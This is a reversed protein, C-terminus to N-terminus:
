YACSMGGALWEGDPSYSMNHWAVKNIPDSFRYTPELEQETLDLDEDTPSPFHAPLNFQRLVRDSSNTILRRRQLVAFSLLICISYLRSLVYRGFKAFGLGRLIGAGSIRYRTVLQPQSDFSHELLSVVVPVCRKRELTLSLSLAM